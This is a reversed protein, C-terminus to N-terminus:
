FTYMANATKTSHKGAWCWGSDGTGHRRTTQYVSLNAVIWLFTSGGDEPHGCSIGDLESINM